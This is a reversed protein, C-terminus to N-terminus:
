SERLECVQPLIVLLVVWPKALLKGSHLFHCQTTKLPLISVCQPLLKM